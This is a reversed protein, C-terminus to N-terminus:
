RSIAGIDIASRINLLKGDSVNFRNCEGGLCLNMKTPMYSGAFEGNLIPPFKVRGSSLLDVKKSKITQRMFQTIVDKCNDGSGGGTCNSLISSDENLKYTSTLSKSENMDPADTAQHIMSPLGYTQTNAHATSIISNKLIELQNENMSYYLTSSSDLISSPSGDPSVGWFDTM